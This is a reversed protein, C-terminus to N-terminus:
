VKGHLIELDVRTHGQPFHTNLEDKNEEEVTGLMTSQVHQYYKVNIYYINTSCANECINTFLLCQVLIHQTSLSSIGGTEKDQEQAQGVDQGLPLVIRHLPM